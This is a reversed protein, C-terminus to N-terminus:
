LLATYVAPLTGRECNLMTPTTAWHCLTAAYALPAPNSESCCWKEKIRKGKWPEVSLFLGSQRKNPVIEILSWVLFSELGDREEQETYSGELIWCSCVVITNNCVDLDLIITNTQRKDLLATTFQVLQTCTWTNRTHMTLQVESM